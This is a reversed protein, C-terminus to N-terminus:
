LGYFAVIVAYGPQSGALLSDFTEGDASASYSYVPADPIIFLANVAAVTGSDTSFSKGTFYYTTGSGSVTAGDIPVGDVDLVFGLLAGDVALDGTYGAAELLAQFTAQTGVDVSFIIKETIADGEGLDSYASASIGTATPMVTGESACDQVLMLLGVASDTVVDLVEYAGADGVTTDSLIELAGGTIAASPDAASVCLGSAAAGGSLLDSATGSISFGGEESTDDGASTDDSTAGSDGEEKDNCAGFTLAVGLLLILTKM